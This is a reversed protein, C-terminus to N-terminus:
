SATVEAKPDYAGRLVSTVSHGPDGDDDEISVDIADYRSVLSLPVDFTASGRPGIQGLPAMKNTVPDLLWAYYFQDATRGPLGHTEFRMDVVKGSRRVMVVEGIGSGEVPELTAIQEAAAPPSTDPSTSSPQVAVTLAATGAVLVVGAAALGLPRRWRAPPPASRLPPLSEAPVLGSDPGPRPEGLTRSTRALVAHGVTLRALEERCEPCSDLHAGASAVEANGLDGRLLAALDLHSTADSM